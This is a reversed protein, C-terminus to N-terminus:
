WQFIFSLNKMIPVLLRGCAFQAFVRADLGDGEQQSQISLSSLWQHGPPKLGHSEATCRELGAAQFIVMEM